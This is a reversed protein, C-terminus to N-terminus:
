AHKGVLERVAASENLHSSCTGRSNRTWSGHATRHRIARGPRTQVLHPWPTDVLAWCVSQHKSELLGCFLEWLVHAPESMNLLPLGACETRHHTDFAVELQARQAAGYPLTLNYRRALFAGGASGYRLMSRVWSDRSRTSCVFRAHPLQRALRVRVPEDTASSYFPNDSLADYELLRSLSPDGSLMREWVDRLPQGSKGTKRVPMWSSEDRADGRMYGEDAHLSALGSAISACHFSTTGSRPLGVNVLLSM